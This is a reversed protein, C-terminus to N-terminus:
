EGYRTYNGPTPNWMSAPRPKPYLFHEPQKRQPHIRVESFGRFRFNASDARLSTLRVQPDSADDALFVQDWFVCLNTVIRVERSDGLFKGALDVVISKPKGAPIGMDEIVTQWEGRADRVQLYPMVLGGDAEQARGLFTSGDAWDVWGSLVMVANNAGAADGFDLELAHLDAVGLRSRSFGDPYRSDRALLKRLVDSGDDDTAAVPYKRERAGFLRFEPFPPGQFKDNIFIDTEAPHDVAILEIQDRYAVESQEKKFSVAFM